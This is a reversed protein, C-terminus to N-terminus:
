SYFLVEDANETLKLSESVAGGGAVLLVPKYGILRVMLLVFQSFAAGLEPSQKTIGPPNCYGEEDIPNCNSKKKTALRPCYEVMDFFLHAKIVDLELASFVPPLSLFLIYTGSNVVDLYSSLAIGTGSGYSYGVDAGKACHYMEVFADIHALNKRDMLRRTYQFLEVARFPLPVKTLEEYKKIFSQFQPLTCPIGTEFTTRM